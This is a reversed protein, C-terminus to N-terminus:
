KQDLKNKKSKNQNNKKELKEKEIDSKLRPEDRTYDWVYDTGDVVIGGYQKCLSRLSM